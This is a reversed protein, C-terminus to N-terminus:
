APQFMFKVNGRFSTREKQLLKAAILAMATHGDHGCAHMIGKNRSCYPIKNEETLPLADMDARILMTPGPRSGKILAVTGTGCMAKHDVGWSKLKSRLLAPTRFEKFGEEPYQHIARRLAVLEKVNSRVDPSINMLGVIAGARNEACAIPGGPFGPPRTALNVRGGAAAIIMRM